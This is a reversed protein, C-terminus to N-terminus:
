AEALVAETEAVSEEYARVERARLAAYHRPCLGRCRAPSGCGEVACPGTQRRWSRLPRPEQGARIQRLHGQCVEQAGYAPRGCSWDSGGASCVRHERGLADDAKTRGTRPHYGRLPALVIPRGERFLRRLQAYHGQCLPGLSTKVVFAARGCGEFSCPKDANM